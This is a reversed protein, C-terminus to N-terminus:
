APVYIQMAVLDRQAEAPLMDYLTEKIHDVEGEDLGLRAVFDDLMNFTDPVDDCWLSALQEDNLWDVDKDYLLDDLIDALDRLTRAHEEDHEIKSHSPRLALMGDVTRMPM